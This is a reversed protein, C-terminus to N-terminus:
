QTTEMREFFISRLSGFRRLWLQRWLLLVGVPNLVIVPNKETPGIFFAVGLPIHFERGEQIEIALQLRRTRRGEQRSAYWLLLIFVIGGPVFFVIFLQLMLHFLFSLIKM